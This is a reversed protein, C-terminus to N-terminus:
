FQFYIFANYSGSVLFIICVAFLLLYLACAAAGFAPPEEGSKGFSPLLRKVPLAFLAAFFLAALCRRTLFYSTGFPIFGTELLGLMARMYDAALRLSDARFLVWGFLVALMTYLWLFAAGPMSISREAPMGSAKRRERLMREAMLFCGHWLGWAVYKWAAGHWLGTLLFVTLLHLYVNGRRNGGLPIYVYDRFWSSLSMHWRRWFETMSFSCYPDHFNERFHFGFMRGLGIAIDSYGSFDYFIQFMYCVAGLWAQVPLLESAPMAFIRDATLGLTDALLLKKSFGLIFRRIGEATDPFSLSRESIEKRIDTYRVIPGAVLQPFMSIYLGLSIPDKEAPADGRYVDIVYSLGQFTYFSIGIPLVIGFLPLEAGPLMRNLSSLFFDLYKFTGLLLLNLAVAAWLLIRAARPSKERLAGTLLALLYNGAISSLLLVLYSPRGWAYFLLSMLFLFPTRLSPRLMHCGLLAAPLFAFLFTCSTFVM